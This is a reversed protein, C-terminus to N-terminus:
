WGLPRLPDISPLRKARAMSSGQSLPDFRSAPLVSDPLQRPGWLSKAQLLEVQSEVDQAATSGPSAAGSVVAIAESNQRRDSFQELRVSRHKRRNKGGRKGAPTPRSQGRSSVDPGDGNGDTRDDVQDDVQNDVLDEALRDGDIGKSQGALDSQEAVIGHIAVDSSVAGLGAENGTGLGTVIPSAPGVSPAFLEEMAPVVVPLSEDRNAGRGFFRRLVLPVGVGGDVRKAGASHKSEYRYKEGYRKGYGYSGAPSLGIVVVGGLLAGAQYLVELARRVHRGKSVRTRMVLITTDALGSVVVPDTVPLCPPTDLLILDFRELQSDLFDKMRQSGLLESPNPPRIGASLLHLESGEGSNWVERIAEEPRVSGLLVSTLGVDNALGFITHLRPRRLDCCIVLVRQGAAAAVAALNAVTTSKGEGQDASTFQVVRIERDLGLFQVSTRLARYSEVVPATPDKLAMLEHLLEGRALRVRPVMALLPLDSRLRDVTGRDSVRDNLLELALAAACGLFAGVFLGLLLSRLWGSTTPAAPVEAPNVVQAGGTKLSADLKISNQRSLFLRLQDLLASRTSELTQFNAPEATILKSEVDRIQDQLGRISTELQDNVANLDGVAQKRRYDIFTQAYENAIAAARVPNVDVVSIRIVSTGSLAVASFTTKFKFKKDVAARIPRSGLMSIDTQIPDGTRGQPNSLQSGIDDAIRSQILLDTDAKFVKPRTSAQFAMLGAVVATVALVIPARWLLIRVYKMVDLREESGSWQEGGDVTQQVFLGRRELHGM